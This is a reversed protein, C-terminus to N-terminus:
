LSLLSVTESHQIPTAFAHYLVLSAAGLVGAYEGLMGTTIEVKKLLIPSLLCNLKEYIPELLINGAKSLTGGIIILQPDLSHVINTIGVSLCYAARQMLKIALADGSQAAEIIMELRNKSLLRLHSDQGHKIAEIAQSELARGSCLDELTLLRPEPDFSTFLFTEGIEGATGGAGRYIQGDLIIGAGLGRSVTIYVLHSVKQGAGQSWEALAAVNADNDVFIPLGFEEELLSRLAVNKWGLNAATIVVGSSYDLWGPTGVGIGLLRKRQNEDLQQIAKHIANKLAEIISSGEPRQEVIHLAQGHLNVLAARVSTGGLDVGIVFGAEPITELMVPKRGGKSDGLGIERVYGQEILMGIIRSVAPLSLGTLKALQTRSIHKNERVISLIKLRNADSVQSVDFGYRKIM